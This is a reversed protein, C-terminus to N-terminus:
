DPSVRRRDQRPTTAPPLEPHLPQGPDNQVDHGIFALLLQVGLFVPLAALMVTGSTAPEGTAISRVWGTVGVCLGFALFVIAALLEVSAATVDHLFYTYFVRKCSNVLHRLPFELSARWIVLNSSEGRYRAPMPVDRVLARLVNLRFLLDSEFFYGREVKNWPVRAAVRAHLATFGNTPDFIRWYGSSAKNLLSLVANGFRRLAPMEKLVDLDYFRNGKTYDAEGRRIPRVLTPILSPDMQGDGDIKVLVDAGDAIAQRYGTITAGGVGQNRDHRLVRVRPDSCDEEVARGTSEPCSDDVVYIHSCEDGIEGLVELIRSRVRYCPIVVAIKLPADM